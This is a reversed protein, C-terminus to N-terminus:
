MGGRHKMEGIARRHIRQQEAAAGVDHDLRERRFAHHGRNLVLADGVHKQDRGHDLHQDIM